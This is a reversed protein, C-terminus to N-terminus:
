GGGWGVVRVRSIVQLKGGTCLVDKLWIYGIALFAPATNSAERYAMWTSAHM